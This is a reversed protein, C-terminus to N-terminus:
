RKEEGYLFRGGDESEAPTGGVVKGSLELPGTTLLAKRDDPEAPLQSHRPSLELAEHSSLQLAV